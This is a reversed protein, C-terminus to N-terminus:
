KYLLILSLYTYLCVFLLIGSSFVMLTGELFNPRSLKASTSRYYLSDPDSDGLKPMGATTSQATENQMSGSSAEDSNPKKGFVSWHPCKQPDQHNPVRRSSAYEESSRVSYLKHSYNGTSIERKSLRLKKQDPSSLPHSLWEPPSKNKCALTIPVESHNRDHLSTYLEKPHKKAPLVQFVEKHKKPSLSSHKKAPSSGKYNRRPSLPPLQKPQWKVKVPHFVSGFPQKCLPCEAKTELLDQTCLFCFSHLCPSLYLMNDFSGSCLPCLSQLSEHLPQTMQSLDQIRGKPSPKKSGAVEEELSM